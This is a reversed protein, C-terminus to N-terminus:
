SLKEPLSHTRGKNVEKLYEMLPAFYEAMARASMGEGLKDKLDERWNVTAGDKMLSKIFDGTAKSGYYNTAHPDQQLIKKAIHDHFQFLLINSMAYDYYQAADNNIHTKSAADCYEEGRETPPIIGQYKKKLEWWRQNYQDKPLNQAYLDHEFETMVGAGWPILVVFDLAEALLAQTEDTEVSADLLGRDVLFPKQLAALGILSGMAEHYARNAGERLVLPVRPNSYEIYYYIHGLEHLTTGWWETNPVVSMLSRVDQKLDMHWASAHSNKKYDADKPAPYLSSKTYFSEPLASFGMSQYFREGEKVIWEAGKKELEEDLDIGEINVMASWEQGWKNTLWHAPLMEPVEQGYKQALTYRAWTHLERYLPWMEDIMGKCTAMLEEKNMGYASVQYDFYDEYGLAQVSKNRLQQLNELGDKLTKGVEKSAEWAKQREQLNTANKLIANIDNGSVAKGDIKSEFGFLLETQQTEAAIRQKVIDGAVAPNNGANYLIHELQKVQLPELGEKAELYTRSKNINEESGLFAALAENAREAEKSTITDGEVIHTNLQWEAESATYYLKQMQENYTDLFRQVEEKNSVTTVEKKEKTEPSGCAIISLAILPLALKKM